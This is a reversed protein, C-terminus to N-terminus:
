LDLMGFPHQETAPTTTAPQSTRQATEDAKKKEEEIRKKEAAQQKQFDQQAVDRAYQWNRANPGTDIPQGGAHGFGSLFNAVTGLIRGGIGMRYKPDSPDIAAIPQEERQGNSAIQNNSASQGNYNSENGMNNETSRTM